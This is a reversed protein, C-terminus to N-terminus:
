MFADVDVQPVQQQLPQSAATQMPQQVPSPQLPQPHQQMPRPQQQVHMANFAPSLQQHVPDQPQAM